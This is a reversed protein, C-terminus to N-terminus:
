INPNDCVYMIANKYFFKIGMTTVRRGVQEYARGRTGEPLAMQKQVEGEWSFVTRGVVGACCDQAGVGGVCGKIVSSFVSRTTTMRGVVNTPGDSHKELLEGSLMKVLVGATPRCRGRGLEDAFM